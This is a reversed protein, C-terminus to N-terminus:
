PSRGRRWRWAPSAASYRRAAPVRHAVTRDAALPQRRDVAAGGDRDRAGGIARPAPQRHECLRHAARFRHRRAAHLSSDERRQADLEPGARGARRSDAQGQVQSDHRREDRAAAAGRCRQRHRSVARQAGRARRRHQHRPAAARLSLVLLESPQEMAALWAHHRHAAHSTRVREAALRADDRRLRPRRRRRHDADPRQRHHDPQSRRSGRRVELDLVWSQPRRGAGRRRPSRRELRLSPRAGTAGAPGPLLQGLGDPRRREDDARRLRPQRRLAPALRHRYLLDPGEASRSVDRLQVRRRLRRGTWM